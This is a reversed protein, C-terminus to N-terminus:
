KSVTPQIVFVVSPNKVSIRGADIDLILNRCRCAIAHSAGSDLRDGCSRCEYFIGPGIPNSAQPNFQTSMENNM